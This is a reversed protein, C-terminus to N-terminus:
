VSSQGDAEPLNLYGATKEAARLPADKSSGWDMDRNRYDFKLTFHHIEKQIRELERKETDYIDKLFETYENGTLYEAARDALETFHPICFGKSSRVRSRFDESERWMHFFVETYRGATHETKECVVCSRCIKKLPEAYSAASKKRILPRKKNESAEAAAGSKELVAALEALHTDLTLALSLKNPKEYMMSFHRNCYGKGNAEIRYDPEMMAAGLAYEVAERETKKGLFCFPCETNEEFAENLPITYITEKM